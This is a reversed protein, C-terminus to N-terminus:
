ARSESLHEKQERDVAAAACVVFWEDERMLSSNGIENMFETM